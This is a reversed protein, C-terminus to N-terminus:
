DFKFADSRGQSLIESKLVRLTQLQRSVIQIFVAILTDHSQKGAGHMVGILVQTGAGLALDPPCQPGEHGLYVLILCGPYLPFLVDETIGSVCPWVSAAWGM